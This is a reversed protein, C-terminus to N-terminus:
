SNPAVRLTKLRQSAILYWIRDIQSTEAQKKLEEWMTKAQSLMKDHECRLAQVALNAEETKGKFGKFDANLKRQLRDLEDLANKIQDSHKKAVLGWAHRDKLEHYDTVLTKWDIQQESLQDWRRKAVELDGNDEATLALRAEREGADDPTLQLRKYRKYMSDESWRLLAMDLYLRLEGALKSEDEAYYYRFSKLPGRLANAYQKDRILRETEQHLSDLTPPHLFVYYFLVCLGVTMLAVGSGVFWGQKHFPTRKQKKRKRRVLARAADRDEDEIETKHKKRDMRRANARDVGASQQAEVKEQIELLMQRVIAASFPRNEPPKELLQVILTDFWVPLDMVFRSPRQPTEKVHKLFMDMTSEAEFPKRGTVLEYFMVGLSYLDSKHTIGKEGRCQEPSMYSATGVTCNTGTLALSADLDKAIGFDTLKITRDPLVMVNSPKLDRHVIGMDHAHQLAECLQEGLGVLEEWSMRERRILIDELTEGEVFEMAYFPVYTEEGVKYKGTALLRVINPHRLQKLIEFEREFRQIATEKNAVTPTIIKIAVRTSTTKYRACYVTGMNGSGIEKEIVFPGLKTGTKLM